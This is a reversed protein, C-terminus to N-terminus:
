KTFQYIYFDSWSGKGIAPDYPYINDVKRILKWESFNESIYQTFNRPREHSSFKVNNDEFDCSYIIVFKQGASFLHKMYAIYIDDEVLHYIVDLSLALDAQFLGANDVFCFPQYLFFSKTLDGAFKKKCISIATVSVDLGIYQLYQALKLQNGDGCGFEIVSQINHKKVFENVVNAKFEALHGYSGDGSTGGKAYRQEWYDIMWLPQLRYHFVLKDLFRRIANM